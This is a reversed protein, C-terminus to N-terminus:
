LTALQRDTSDNLADVLRAPSFERDRHFLCESIESRMAADDCSEDISRYYEGFDTDNCYM